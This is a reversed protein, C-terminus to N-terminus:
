EEGAGVVELMWGQKSPIVRGWVHAGEIQHYISFNLTDKELRNIKLIIADKIEERAITTSDVIRVTYGFKYVTLSDNIFSSKLIKLPLREPVEGHLWQQLIPANLILQVIEAHDIDQQNNVNNNSSNEKCGILILLLIYLYPLNRM